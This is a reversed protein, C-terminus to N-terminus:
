KRLELIVKANKQDSSSIFVEHRATSTTIIMVSTNPPISGLNEAVMILEHHPQSADISITFSIPTASLRARSKILVNNHYISVTDGDIEGNDYLAIKIEGAETQIQKVLANIRTTLVLPPKPFVQSGQKLVSISRSSTDAKPKTVSSSRVEKEPPVSKKIEVIKKAPTTTKKPPAKVIPPEKKPVTTKPPAIVVPPPIECERFTIDDMAFDNGCGGPNNNVMILRLSASNSPTTFIARHQTWRPVEVRGIDGTAFQAIIKGEETQIRITLNPLLPFPCKDTPRCVNMLWAGFEYTTKGKLGYITTSLFTGRNPAANVVLMDGGDGATHDDAITHWDGRFCNSTYSTYSYHGDTPCSSGVRDYYLLYDTNIDSINGSGFNITVQPPKFVCNRPQAKLSLAFVIYLMLSLLEKM